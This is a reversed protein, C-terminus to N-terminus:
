QLADAIVQANRVLLDPYSITTLSAEGPDLVGTKVNLDQVFSQVVADPLQPESFAAKVSNDKVTNHLRALDQPTPEKGPTPEFVGAVMLDFERTFYDFSEHFLVISRSTLPDLLAHARVVALDLERDFTALNAQFASASEPFRDTLNDAINHAIIKANASSLWYHPDAASAGRDSVDSDGFTFPQLSINTDVTVVSVQDAALIDSTWTDVGHGVAFIVTADQLEHITSPNIEFTHPNAGAPMVQVVKLADGAIAKTIEALSSITTGVIPRSDPAATDSQNHWWLFGGVGLAIVVMVLPLYKMSVM